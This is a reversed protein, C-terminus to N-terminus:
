PKESLRKAVEVGRETLRLQVSWRAPVPRGTWSDRFWRERCVLGRGELRVLARSLAAQDSRSPDPYLKARVTYYSVLASAEKGEDQAAQGIAVLIRIQLQSLKNTAAESRMRPDDPATSQDPM